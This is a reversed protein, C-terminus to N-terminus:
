KMLVLKKQSTFSGAKIVYLYVGSAVQQGREDKADWTLCYRGANMESAVLKKVLQGNTNYITLTVAGAEPLAFSIQTTPNFPNPYNQELAYDTVVESKAVESEEAESPKPLNGPGPLSGPSDHHLFLCDREVILEKVCMAGRLQSNKDLTVISNPANLTGLFYAERGVKMTASQLSNFTVLESDGEGNPLLRIEVENGLFLNSVVNLTIPNGSSLDIEIVATTTTSSNYKLSTFYYVGSALKLKSFSNLTVNNYSGPALALTGNQPATKNQGGASYSLSPLPEPPVAGVTITGNVTGSNSVSLPSKVNGNITNQQNITIKGAATLNSNYTSPAGKEITLAGNSHINGAPTSQKTQKLTVKNALFVFAKGAPPASNVTINRSASNTCSNGDTFSYTVTHTGVGAVGPNFMTGSIGPGSFTGGSPSVSSALNVAADTVLFPGVPNFTVTPLPNVVIDQSATNTCSNGDTFSYTITHTGAGASSPTFIGAATVGDGSFTGGSPSVYSTLNIAAANVCVAAVANFTVVPLPNVVIDQSASNTCNSGSTFTYTITHTGAGASSPTFIGASTVGNGTFTGGAPSVFATLDVAAANVCYPGAPNFTVTPLTEVMIDQSATNTCSNGDTFSYTITHTGMGATSPTFIGASTVGTGSFTGGSPSVFSTLDVAPSNLCYPGAPNFTVVPLPNVIIDQSATSTCSNGDTFSYTITHTGAGATSPTFIGAATVGDGSFTGGSPSVYSTLDIAAANVCVAAVANFTVSPLPNVVIDQSASNTCNSGSTFTYTITHTGTGASSPTFIGASTVGAGSFTGGSPSVFATLDVAAANVCYPGAPTFTVTPLPNVTVTVQDMATCGNADTVTLTYTTTTAPSATPNALSADNLGSTPSWSYMYPTAGGTAAPSGGITTSGSACIEVDAGANALLENTVAISKSFESTNGSPDTATASVFQGLALATPLSVTFNVNGTGDTTVTTSLQFTEGEGFGSPDAASNSFFELTFQTNATSNLSGKVVTNGGSPHACNLVPFNQLNNAGTDGDGLDNATVGNDGLDIGLNGNSFIANGLVSNNIPITPGTISVGDQTNFAIVNGAGSATGGVANDSSGFGIDVGSLGNALAAAGTADTGIFNGQIVNGSGTNQFFVGSGTNGSILNRAGAVLGGITNNTASNSLIVGEGNALAAMGNVDTGIYNGQVFNSSTGSDMFKVGSADNGSIINRAATSTGGIVNNSAGNFILVGNSENGLDATGSADTGILNGQVTNSSALIAIGDGRNASILNGAGAATGGVTNNGSEIRVGTIQQNTGTNLNVTGTVDTGIYNGQVFNNNPTGGNITISVGESGNTSIINRASTSTGGITNNSAGSEILVGAGADTGGTVDAAGSANVGIFNNAVVNGTASAGTIIIEHSDHGSILNRKSTATGGVTNNASEIRVGFSSSGTLSTGTIETGLFCCEIQNNGGSTIKIGNGDTFAPTADRFRHIVLGRVTSNGTTINLGNAEGASVGDLIIKLAPPWSSCSAGAQTLGDIIVPDTITPLASTPAITFPGTGSTINFHILDPTSADLNAHANADIIAQRLSGTGADNTNTVTYTMQAPQPEALQFDGFSTMAPAQTSTATRTGVTPYSWNPSNFKGVILNNTNVGGDLDGAVFNFTADYVAFGLGADQSLTWTRNVSKNADLISSSINAHDGSTTTATVSGASSLGVINVNVPAYNGADGVEFVKAASASFNMQLNGVVHGSTRAITAGANIIMTNTGTSVNGSTLTLTNSVTENTLLTVGSANNITLNYFTSGTMTQASAGDMTVTGTGPTFTGNNTWNGALNLNLSNANLAGASITLDGNVDLASALQATANASNVLLHFIPVASNLEITQGAPTAANGIRFTGGTISKTGSGSAIVLEGGSVNGNAREFTVTGNTMTFNGTAGINFNPDASASNGVTTVVVEGGNIFLGNGAGSTVVRVRGALNLTGNNITARSTSSGLTLQNGSANGVTMTGNDITLTGDLTLSGTSGWNSVASAHNLHFGAVSPITTAGAFPTITSASSLKFTGQTLMLGDSTMTIPSLVDFVSASSGMNVTLTNFATTAASGSVTKTGTGNFTVNGSNHTFTGNNTFNGGLTLIGSTSTLTSGADITLNGNATRNPTSLNLTTANSIQVNQPVGAGSSTNATWEASVNYSGGSNYKLTAASGYTPANTSVFGGTNIQLTGNVTSAAGFNVGSALVINNFITTGSITGTGAFNVTGTGANFTGNNTLLGNSAINLTNSSGSFTGSSIITFHKADGAADLTVTHGNQIFVNSNNHPVVSGTWITAASYNGSAISAVPYTDENGSFDPSINDVLPFGFYHAFDKDYGDPGNSQPTLFFTSEVFAQENIMAGCVYVQAPSGLNARPIKYEVFTGSQFAQVGSNNGGVWSSGNWSMLDTFTNDAKWRLHYDANFPLGPTQTNYNQGTSTGSGSLPNQRPDADLYLLVWKTSSGSNVDSANVGFYFNSADWTFYWTSGSTGPVDEDAAFDNNGDIIITHNGGTAHAPPVNLFLAGFFLAALALGIAPAPCRYSQLTWTAM